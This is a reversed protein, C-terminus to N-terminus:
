WSVAGDAGSLTVSAWYWPHKWDRSRRASRTTSAQGLPKAGRSRNSIAVPKLQGRAMALQVERLADVRDEGRKLRRYWASMLAQTADDGVKWLTAAQSRAGALILARKLGYLGEGSAAKGVGTECASLVVMETGFLDLGAAEVATLMGDNGLNRKGRRNFGALALGSRLMPDDLAAAVQGNAAESDPRPLFFGHTAIHLIRPGRAAMLAAESARAGLLKRDPDIGLLKSLSDAERRTGPLPGFRLQDLREAVADPAREQPGGADVMMRPTKTARVGFDADALVLPGTQLPLPVDTILDRGSTVYRLRRNELLWRGQADVLAAFPVLHLPGDPSLVWSRSAELDPMLPAVITAHLAAARTKVGAQKGIIAERLASVERGVRKLLGLDRLVPTQGRRVIVAALRPEGHTDKKPDYPKYVLWEVLAEGRALKAAVKEANPRELSKAFLASKSALQEEFREVQRRAGQLLKKQIAAKRKNASVPRAALAAVHGRETKLKTLLKRGERNLHQRLNRLSAASASLELGKRELSLNAVGARLAPDGTGLALTVVRHLDSRYRRIFALRQKPSGFRLNNLLHNSRISAARQALAAAEAHRRRSWYLKTLNNLATAVDPHDVGLAKEFIALSRRYLPLAGDYNGKDSYLDALNNLTEAVKPHTPSLAKERIALSRKYLSLASDYDGMTRRLIALNNLAAAVRFHNPGLAKERIALSRRYLPLASDFEGKDSRLNALNNLATAVRPHNPGLTKEGIALSREYLPLASDYDGKNSYLNALSNLSDAVDPHKPGLAEKRIALSRQHLRMAGDYDGMTKYLIALNSLATAVEPHRHGLARERINLSRKFLPLASDYDGTDAYLIALSNLSYAVDPHNPGLAKERIDLSRKYLPLASDNDGRDAYITASNNLSHGLKPHNPGLVKERVTAARHFLALAERTGGGYYLGKGAEHLARGLLADPPRGPKDVLALAQKALGAGRSRTARKKLLIEAQDIMASARQDVIPLREGDHQGPSGSYARHNHSAEACGGVAAVSLLISVWLERGNVM